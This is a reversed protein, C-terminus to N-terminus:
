IVRFTEPIIQVRLLVVYILSGHDTFGEIKSSVVSFPEKVGIWNDLEFGDFGSRITDLLDMMEKAAGGTTENHGVTVKIGYFVDRFIPQSKRLERDEVLYPQVAPLPPQPGLATDINPLNLATLRAVVVDYLERYM